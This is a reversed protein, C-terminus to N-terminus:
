REYSNSEKKTLQLMIRIINYQHSPVIGCDEYVCCLIGSTFTKKLLKPYFLIILAFITLHSVRM